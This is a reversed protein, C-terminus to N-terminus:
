LKPINIKEHNEVIIEFMGEAEPLLPSLIQM